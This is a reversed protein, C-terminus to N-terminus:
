NISISLSLILHYEDARHMTDWFKQVHSENITSIDVSTYVDQKLVYANWYINMYYILMGFFLNGALESM